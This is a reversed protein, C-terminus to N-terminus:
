TQNHLYSIRWLMAHLPQLCQTYRSHVRGNKRSPVALCSAAVARCASRHRNRTLSSLVIRHFLRTCSWPRMPSPVQTTSLRSNSLHRELRRVLPSLSSWECFQFTSPVRTLVTSYSRRGSVGCQTKEPARSRRRPWIRGHARMEKSLGGCQSGPVLREYIHLLDLQVLHRSSPKYESTFDGSDRAPLLDLASVCVLRRQFSSSYACSLYM